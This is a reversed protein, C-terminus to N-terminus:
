GTPGRQQVEGVDVAVPPGLLGEAADQLAKAVTTSAVPDPM